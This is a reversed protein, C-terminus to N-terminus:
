VSANAELRYVQGVGSLAREVADITAPEDWEAYLDPQPLDDRLARSNPDDSSPPAQTAGATTDAPASPKLKFALGIRVALRDGRCFLGDVQSSGRHGSCKSSGLTLFLTRTCLLKQALLIGRLVTPRDSPRLSHPPRRAIAAVDLPDRGDNTCA